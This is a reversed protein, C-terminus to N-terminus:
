YEAFMRRIEDCNDTVTLALMALIRAKMPNLNDAVVFETTKVDNARPIARGVARSSLVVLVGHENAKTLADRQGATPQGPPHGAVVIGRAGSAVAAEILAGDAGAYSFIIDVRPLEKSKFHNVDFETDPAHRRMSSRYISITGDPDAYGLIGLDPTHFTEVRWNLTKTVERACQIEDNMVVMVGLGRANPSGAVRVANVLNLGADTSMVNPPRQSGVIVVPIDVKVTLHLFYATEELSSTGHTVVIGTITPDDEIVKNIKTVLDIWAPPTLSSSRIASHRIPVINAVTSVEPFMALLEDVELIQAFDGYECFDLNHRALMSISGGTGIVAVKPKNLHEM